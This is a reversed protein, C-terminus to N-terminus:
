PLACVKIVPQWYCPPTAAVISKKAVASLLSAAVRGWNAYWPPSVHKIIVGAKQSKRKKNMKLLKFSELLSILCFNVETEELLCYLHVKAGVGRTFQTHGNFFTMFQIFFIRFACTKVLFHSFIALIRFFCPWKPNYVGNPNRM